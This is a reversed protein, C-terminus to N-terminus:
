KKGKKKPLYINVFVTNGKKGKAGIFTVSEGAWDDTDPGLLTVLRAVDFDRGDETSLLHTFKENGIKVTISFGAFKKTKFPDGVRVIKGTVKQNNKLSIFDDREQSRNAYAALNM